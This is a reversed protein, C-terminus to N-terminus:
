AVEATVLAPNARFFAADEPKQAWDKYHRNAMHRTMMDDGYRLAMMNMGFEGLGGLPVAWLSPHSM